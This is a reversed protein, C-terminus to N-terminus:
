CANNEEDRHLIVDKENSNTLYKSSYITIKKGNVIYSSYINGTALKPCFSIFHEFNHPTYDLPRNPNSLHHLAQMNFIWLM